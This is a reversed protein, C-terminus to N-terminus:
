RVNKGGLFVRSQVGLDKRFAHALREGADGVQESFEHERQRTHERERKDLEAGFDYTESAVEVLKKVLRHDPKGKQTAVLQEEGDEVMWVISIDEDPSYRLRLGPDLQQLDRAVDGEVEVLRGSTAARVQPISAPQIDITEM